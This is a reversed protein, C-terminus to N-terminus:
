RRCTGLRYCGLDRPESGRGHTQAEERRSSRSEFHKPKEKRESREEVEPKEEEIMETGLPRNIRGVTVAPGNGEETEEEKM